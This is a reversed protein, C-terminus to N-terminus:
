SIIVNKGNFSTVRWISFPTIHGTSKGDEDIPICARMENNKLSFRCGAKVARKYFRTEGNKTIFGISFSQDTNGLEIKDWQNLVDNLSIAAM